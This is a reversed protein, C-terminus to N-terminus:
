INYSINIRGRLKNNGLFDFNFNLNPSGNKQVHRMDMCIKELLSNETKHSFNM